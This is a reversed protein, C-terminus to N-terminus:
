RWASHCTNREAGMAETRYNANISGCEVIIIPLPTETVDHLRVPFNSAGCWDNKVEVTSLPSRAGRNSNIGLFSGRTDVSYSFPLRVARTMKIFRKDIFIM